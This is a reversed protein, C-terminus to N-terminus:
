GAEGSVRRWFSSSLAPDVWRRFEEIRPYSARFVAPSMRPDKAPYLAGRAASVVSDLDEFLRLTVEGRFPFDLALTLGPRPFSMMGPSKAHGFKKIVGLFSGQGAKAIRELIEQFAAAESEPVVCQYQTLGGRGYIRNWNNVKDLPYFFPDYHCVAPGGKLRGATYYLTNFMRITPPNLAFSPLSFPVNLSIEEPHTNLQGEKAHNGRMFLGRTRRGSLCDIWGVTYEWRSGEEDSSLRVFDEFTSFPVTEMTIQASSIKKLKLSARRIIGTLGLGGITAAFLDPNDDRSCLVADGTSRVLELQGIHCGVTGEQHHNKGHVDNAIAGGLTVLKTGPTVPLFWGNPVALLLIESLTVGAECTILGHETDFSLVRDLQRMDMLAGGDNLCSDGYSRGLGFALLPANQALAAPTVEDMWAPRLVAKHKARPYKGWGQYTSIEEVM